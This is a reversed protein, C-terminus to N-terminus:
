DSVEAVTILDKKAGTCNSDVQSKGVMYKIACQCCTDPFETNTNPHTKEM